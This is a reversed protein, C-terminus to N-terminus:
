DASRKKRALLVILVASVLLVAIVAIYISREGTPSNGAGDDSVDGSDNGNGASGVLEGTDMNVFKDAWTHNDFESDNTYTKFDTVLIIGDSVPHGNEGDKWNWFDGYKKAQNLLETVEGNKFADVSKEQAGFLLDENLPATYSDERFYTSSVDMIIREPQNGVIPKGTSVSGAFHCRRLKFTGSYAPEDVLGGVLGAALNPTTRNTIVTMTSYCNEFMGASRLRVHGALGGVYDGGIVTGETWCSNVIAEPYVKGILGGVNTQNGNVWSSRVTGSYSCNQLTTGSTSFWPSVASGVLGGVNMYGKVYSQKVHLNRITGNEVAGFLGTGKNHYADDTVCYLGSITHSDGDLTAAFFRSDALRSMDDISFGIPTWNNVPAVTEWNEYNATDNLKIDATLKFYMGDYVRGKGETATPPTHIKGNIAVTDGNVMAALFALQSANEILIPDDIDTGKENSTDFAEYGGDWVGEPVPDRRLCNIVYYTVDEGRTLQISVTNTVGATLQIKQSASGSQVQQGNVTLSIDAGATPVVSLGEVSNPLSVVYAFTEPDFNFIGDSLMLDNLSIVIDNVVPYGDTGTKWTFGGGIRVGQNLFDRVTGGIFATTSKEEANGLAGSATGTHSGNEYYTSDITVSTNPNKIYTVPYASNVDGAFYCNKVSLSKVGTDGLNTHDVYGLLGASNGNSSRVTMKSYSNYITVNVGGGWVISYGVLGGTGTGGSVTGDSYCNTITVPVSASGSRLDGVIGGVGTGAAEITGNFSCWDIVTATSNQTIGVIGGAVGGATKRVTGEFTCNQIITQGSTTRAVIGGACGMYAGNAPDDVTVGTSRSSSVEGNVNLNKITANAVAGFLGASPNSDDTVNVYLNSITHGDGDFVGSFDGTVYGASDSDYYTRFKGIPTWPRAGLNIDATLRFYANQYNAFSQALYALQSANAILYPDDETGSGGDFATGVSGDWMDGSRTVMVTYTVTFGDREGTITIANEEESLPVPVSSSADTGNVKVTTGEAGMATVTTSTVSEEVFLKYLYVTPDFNITGCDVSFGTIQPMNAFIPYELGNKWHNLGTIGNSQLTDVGANLFGTVAGGAFDSASKAVANGLTGAVETGTYSDNTFYVTDITISASANLVNAIPRASNVTGVFYSTQITVSKVSSNDGAGYGYLGASNGNSSTVTMASYCNRITTSVGGGWVISYGVLGGTGTGGSVTGTTYCNSINVPVNSGGSRLDGVIGGAGTGASTITANVSCGDITTSVTNQTMGVIGGSGGGSTKNVTGDFSCNQIITEGATTRGVIGGAAGRVIGNPLDDTTGGNDSNVSGNVHLDKITANSVAGFLGASPMTSLNEATVNVFLNSITHGDGDFVGSFDGVVYNSGNHYTAHKGIPTWARGGLNVDATLRFYAGAYEAFSDSLYALQAPTAILYPDEETGSGGDFATAVSGDWLNAVKTVIITYTFEMGDREGVVTITTQENPLSVDVTTGTIASGNVKINTGTEGVATVTITNVTDSVFVDYEYDSPNFELTGVSLSLNTVKPSVADTVFIPYGVTGKAWIKNTLGQNLLDTITGDAFHEAARQTAKNAGWIGTDTSYYTKSVTLNTDAIKACNGGKVNYITACSAKGAFHSNSCDLLINATTFGDTDKLSPFIAGLIGGNIPTGTLDAVSYSHTVNIAITTAANYAQTQGVLGGGRGSSVITGSSFSKNITVTRNAAADYGSVNGVLGGVADSGTINGTSRCGDLLLTSATSATNHDWLHGVVGGVYSGSGTVSAAASCNTFNLTGSAYGVLGGVGDAGNVTGVFTCNELNTTGGVSNGIIGGVSNAGKVSGEVYINKFNKTQYGVNVKGFLGVSGSASDVKLGTIKYGNGDFHGKFAVSSTGIPTWDYGGLDIDSKLIYYAQQWTQFNSELKETSNYNVALWALQAANQIWYPNNSYGTGAVPQELSEGDWASASSASFIGIGTPLMVALLCLVSVISITSKSVERAKSIVKGIWATNNLM